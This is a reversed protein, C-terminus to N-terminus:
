SRSLEAWVVSNLEPLVKLLAITTHIESGRIVHGLNTVSVALVMPEVGQLYRALLMNARDM